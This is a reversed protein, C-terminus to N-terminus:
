PPPAKSFQSSGWGWVARACGAGSRGQRCLGLTLGEVESQAGQAECFWRRSGQPDGPLHRRPFVALNM